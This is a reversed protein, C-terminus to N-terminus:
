MNRRMLKELGIWDRMAFVDYFKRHGRDLTDRDAHAIIEEVQPENALSIMKEYFAAGTKGGRYEELCISRLTKIWDACFLPFEEPGILRRLTDYAALQEIRDCGAKVPLGHALLFDRRALMGRLAPDWIIAGGSGAYYSGNQECAEFLTGIMDLPVVDGAGCFAAYKGRALALGTKVACYADASTQRHIRIFAPDARQFELTIEHTRDTSGCDAVIVELDAYMRLSQDRLADLCRPLTKQANRATVIISVATENDPM